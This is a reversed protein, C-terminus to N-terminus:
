SECYAESFIGEYLGCMTNSFVGVAKGLEKIKKYTPFEAFPINRKRIVDTLGEM